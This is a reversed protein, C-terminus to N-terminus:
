SADRFEVPSFGYGIVIPNGAKLSDYDVKTVVLWRRKRGCQLARLITNIAVKWAPRHAASVDDFEVWIM